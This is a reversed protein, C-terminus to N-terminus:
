RGEKWPGGPPWTSSFPDGRALARSPPMLFDVIATAAGVLTMGEGGVYRRRIFSNWQARKAPDRTFEEQLAPPTDMPLPTERRGFTERLGEALRTGEFAYERALVALDYFDKMRSNLLGLAVLAEFKEAIVAEKPYIRLTPAPLGLLVPYEVTEPPPVIADGFGVDVQVTIRSRGLYAAITVRIGGYENVERIEAAEVSDPAFSLGDEPCEVACIERLTQRLGDLDPAGYALLDVDRTPRARDGSWVVFLMAGKLVFRDRHPSRSLRYLLRESAYRILVYQFDQHLSEINQLRQRISAALDKLPTPTM